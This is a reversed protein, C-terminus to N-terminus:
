KNVTHSCGSFYVKGNLVKEVIEICSYQHLIFSLKNINTKNESELFSRMNSQLKDVYAEMQQPHIRRTNDAMELLGRQENM